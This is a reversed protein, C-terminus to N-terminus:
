LLGTRNSTVIILRMTGLKYSQWLYFGPLFAPGMQLEWHGHSSKTMDGAVGHPNQLSDAEEDWSILQICITKSWPFGNYQSLPLAYHYVLWNVLYIFGRTYVGLLLRWFHIQNFFHFFFFHIAESNSGSVEVEEVLCSCAQLCFIRLAVTWHQLEILWRIYSASIVWNLLRFQTWQSEGLLFVCVTKLCVSINRQICGM